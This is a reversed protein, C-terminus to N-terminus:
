DRGTIAGPLRNIQLQAMSGYLDQHILWRVYETKNKFGRARYMVLVDEHVKEEVYTKIETDHAMDIDM